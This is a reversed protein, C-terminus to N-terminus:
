EFPHTSLQAILWRLIPLLAQDTPGDSVLTLRRHNM